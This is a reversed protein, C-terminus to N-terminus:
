IVKEQQNSVLIKAMVKRKNDGDLNEYLNSSEIEVIMCNRDNSKTM